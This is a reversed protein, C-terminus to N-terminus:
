KESINYNEQIFRIGLNFGASLKGIDSTYLEKKDGFKNEIYQNFYQEKQVYLQTVPDKLIKM